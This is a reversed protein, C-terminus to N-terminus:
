QLSAESVPRVHSAGDSLATRLRETVVLGGRRQDEIANSSALFCGPIPAGPMALAIVMM